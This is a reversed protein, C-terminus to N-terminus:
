EEKDSRLALEKKRELLAKLQDRIEYLRVTSVTPLHAEEQLAATAKLIEKLQPETSM